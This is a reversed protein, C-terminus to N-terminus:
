WTGLAQLSHDQQGSTEQSTSSLQLFSNCTLTVTPELHCQFLAKLVNSGMDRCAPSQALGQIQLLSRFDPKAKSTSLEKLSSVPLSVPWVPWQLVVHSRCCPYDIWDHESAPYCQSIKSSTRLPCHHPFLDELPFPSSLCLSLSYRARRQHPPPRLVFLHPETNQANSGIGAVSLSRMLILVRVLIGFYLEM